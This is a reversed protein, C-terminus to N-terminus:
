KFEFYSKSKYQIIKRFHHYDNTKEPKGKAPEHQNYIM